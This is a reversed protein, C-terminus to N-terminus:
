LPPLHPHTTIMSLDNKLHIQRVTLGSGVNNKIKLVTKLLCNKPSLEENGLHGMSFLNQAKTAVNTSMQKENGLDHLEMGLDM